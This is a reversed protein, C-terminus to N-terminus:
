KFPNTAHVTVEPIFGRNDMEMASVITHAIEKSTLKGDEEPREIREDPSRFATPVESPNVTIVRIDHKRLEARWCESMSRLAFKSASYVSGGAYGRLSATSSINIIDGGQGKSIFHNAALQAMLAAGFVNVSFVKQFDEETVETIPAFVGIGANNILCDLGGLHAVAKEFSDKRDEDKAVDAVVPYAGVESAAAEVREKGRGTIVVLAGKEVLLKAAEKGIGLSGGTLLVRAGEIKM